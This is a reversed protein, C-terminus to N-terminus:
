SSSTSCRPTPVCWRSTPSPRSISRARRRGAPRLRQVAGQTAEALDIPETHAVVSGARITSLALVKNVLRELRDSEAYATDLLEVGAPPLGADGLSRVGSVAAKITALPTRLNHTM